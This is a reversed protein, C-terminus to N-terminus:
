TARRAKRWGEAGEPLRRSLRAHAGLLVNVVEVHCHVVAMCVALQGQADRALLDVGLDLLEEVVRVM